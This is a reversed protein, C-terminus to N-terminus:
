VSWVKMLDIGVSIDDDITFIRGDPNLVFAASNGHCPPYGCERAFEDRIKYTGLEVAWRKKGHRIFPRVACVDHKHGSVAVDFDIGGREWDVEQGHTLNFISNYKFKHRVKWVQSIEGCKLRFISQNRDYLMNWGHTLEKIWDIGSVKYTWNDHNGSVCVIIRDRLKNLYWEVAKIEQAHTTPQTTQVSQLKGIVFNDFLDGALIVYVNEHSLIVDLDHELAEMDIKGGFHIDSVMVVMSPKAPLIIEQSLEIINKDKAEQSIKRLYPLVEEEVSVHDVPQLGKIIVDDNAVDFGRLSAERRYRTISEVGINFEDAAAQVGHENAYSVITKIRDDSTGMKAM